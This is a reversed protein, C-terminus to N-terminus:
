ANHPNWYNHLIQMSLESFFIEKETDNVIIHTDIDMTVM